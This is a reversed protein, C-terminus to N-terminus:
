PVCVKNEGCSKNNPPKLDPDCLCRSQSDNDGKRCKFGENCVTSENCVSNYEGNSKKCVHDSCIDGDDKCEKGSVNPDCCYSDTEGCPTCISSM